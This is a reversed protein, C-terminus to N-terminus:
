VVLNGTGRDNSTYGFKDNSENPITAVELTISNANNCSASEGPGITGAFAATGLGLVLVATLAFIKKM